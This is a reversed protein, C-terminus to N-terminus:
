PANEGSREIFARMAELTEPSAHHEMGEADHEATEEPVGIKMLFKLVIEHRTRAYVALETGKETLFISRYPESKVYGEKALRQITQSVTVASIGFREALDVARAEGREEILSHILEVYDEATESSHDARIRQFPNM